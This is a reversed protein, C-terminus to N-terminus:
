GPGPRPAAKGRAELECPLLSQYIFTHVTPKVGQRGGFYGGVGGTGFVAIRM